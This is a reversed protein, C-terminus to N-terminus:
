LFLNGFSQLISCVKKMWEKQNQGEKEKRKEGGSDSGDGAGMSKRSLDRVAYRINKKM